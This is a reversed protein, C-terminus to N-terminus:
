RWDGHLRSHLEEVLQKLGDIDRNVGFEEVFRWASRTSYKPKGPKEDWGYKRVDVHRLPGM